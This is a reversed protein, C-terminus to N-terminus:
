AKYMYMFGVGRMNNSSYAQSVSPECPLAGESGPEEQPLAATADLWAHVGEMKAALEAPDM